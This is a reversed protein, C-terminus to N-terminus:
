NSNNRRKLVFNQLLDFYPAMSSRWLTFLLAAYIIAGCCVSVAVGGWRDGIYPLAVQRAGWLAVAMLLAAIFPRGVLRLTEGSDVGAYKKLVWQQLPMTLWARATYGAAVAMLGYPVSIRTIVLTAVLQVLAVVLVSQARNVASLAPPAFFNTVFPVSMLVLIQAIPATEHWKDGFLLVIVTDALAGFGLLMPLVCLSAVGIFKNYANGFAAPENQLRSLTVLSVNSIPALVAQGILEILRWAIRYQGVEAPGYWRSIFVDQARALLMWMLQTVVLSMSFVLISRFIGVKFRLKPVWPFSWWGLVVTVATNVASQVVLAWVGMGHIAGIVAAGGSLTGAVISQMALSKHGFDRAKRANHVVALASVPLLAALWRLPAVVDPDAVLQAYLPAFGIVLLGIAGSFFLSAWFVTDAFEEELHLQRTVADGFGSYSLVRGIEVFLSALAFTGLDRAELVRALVMFVVFSVVTGWGVRIVSWLVSWATKVKLESRDLNDM